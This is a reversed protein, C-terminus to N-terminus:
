VRAVLLALCPSALMDVCSRSMPTHESLMLHLAGLLNARLASETRIVMEAQSPPVCTGTTDMLQPWLHASRKAAVPALLVSAVHIIRNVALTNTM